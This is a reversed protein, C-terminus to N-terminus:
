HHEAHMGRDRVGTSALNAGEPSILAAVSRRRVENYSAMSLAIQVDTGVKRSRTNFAQSRDRSIM